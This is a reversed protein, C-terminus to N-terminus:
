QRARRKRRARVVVLRDFAMGFLFAVVIVLILPTHGTTVLWHVRVGDLNLLAFATVLAGLVVGAALRTRERRQARAVSHGGSGAPDPESTTM